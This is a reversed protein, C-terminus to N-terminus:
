AHVFLGAEVLPTEGRLFPEQRGSATTRNMWVVQSGVNDTMPM